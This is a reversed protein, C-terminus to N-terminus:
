AAERERTEPFRDDLLSLSLSLIIRTSSLKSEYGRGNRSAPGRTLSTLKENPTTKGASTDVVDVVPSSSPSALRIEIKQQSTAFSEAGHNAKVCRSSPVRPSFVNQRYDLPLHEVRISATSIRADRSDCFTLPAENQETARARLNAEIM